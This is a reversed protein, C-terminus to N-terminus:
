PKATVVEPGRKTPLPIQVTATVPEFVGGMMICRDARQGVMPAGSETEMGVRQPIFPEDGRLSRGVDVRGM